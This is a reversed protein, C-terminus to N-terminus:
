KIEEFDRVPARQVWDTGLVRRITLREIPQFGAKLFGNLSAANGVNVHAYVRRIGSSQLDKLAVALTHSFLHKGRFEPLTHVNRVEVEDAQLVLDSTTCAKRADAIWTIHGLDDNWFGLYFWDLGHTLDALFDSPVATVSRSERWHALEQPRGRRVLSPGVAVRQFDRRQEHLALRLRFCQEAFWVNRVM